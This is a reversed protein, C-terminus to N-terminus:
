AMIGHPCGGLPQGPLAHPQAHYGALSCHGSSMGHNCSPMRWTAPWSTCTSTCPERFALLTLSEHWPKTLAVELHSALSHVHNHMTGLMWLLCEEEALVTYVM